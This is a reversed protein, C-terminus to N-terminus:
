SARHRRVQARERRSEWRKMVQAQDFSLHRKTRMPMEVSAAVHLVFDVRRCELLYIALASLGGGASAQFRIAPDAAHGKAIRLAPGWITDWRTGDATHAPDPGEVRLGPCVALVVGIAM